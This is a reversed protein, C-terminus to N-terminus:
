EAEPREAVEDIEAPLPRSPASRDSVRIYLKGDLFTAIRRDFREEDNVARGGFYNTGDDARWVFSETEGYQYIRLIQPVGGVTRVTPDSILDMVVELPEWNLNANRAVETANPDRNRPVPYNRDRILAWLRRRAQPSADGAFYVGYTAGPRLPTLLNMQIEGLRNYRYSYGEFRLRRWSWGMLVVDLDPIDAQSQGGPLDGVDRRSESYVSHLKRALYNIDTRGSHNGDLLLCLNTAHILFAYAATADGSM